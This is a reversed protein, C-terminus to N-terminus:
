TLHEKKLWQSAVASPDDHDVSVKINLGTLQQTTLKASLANLAASVAPTDVSKHIVPILYDAPQLHKDDTLQVFGNELVNGDSSFLEAVQVTGNKLDAVTIPGAEDTSTFAKFHIGYVSALGLECTPRQPCEPPAGLTLQSAVPALSSLTTLHYRRATAKTVAFVNTDIAPAPNLVTAGKPSLEQKLLPIATSTQTAQRTDNANFFLLLTGAYDPYLDLQGAAFAPEVAERSGLNPRLKTHIGAHQLVDAYLNAVIVQEYFNTSGITITPSGSSSTCAAALLSLATVALFIRPGRM